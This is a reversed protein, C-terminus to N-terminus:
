TASRRMKEVPASLTTESLGPPKEPLSRAVAHELQLNPGERADDLRCEGARCRTHVQELGIDAAGGGACGPPSILRPSALVMSATQSVPSRRPKVRPRRGSAARRRMM